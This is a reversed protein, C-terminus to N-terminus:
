VAGHTGKICNTVSELQTALDSIANLLGNSIFPLTALDAITHKPVDNHARLEYKSALTALETDVGKSIKTLVCNDPVSFYFASVECWAAVIRMSMCVRETERLQSSIHLLYQFKSHMLLRLEELLTGHMRSQRLHVAWFSSAYRVNEPIGTKARHGLDSLYMGQESTDEPGSGESNLIKLCSLTLYSHDSTDVYFPNVVTKVQEDRVIDIFCTTLFDIMSTHLHRIPDNSSAGPFLVNIPQMISRVGYSIHIHEQLFTQLAYISLPERMTILIRMIIKFASFFGQRSFEPQQMLVDYYLQYLTPPSGHVLDKAREVAETQCITPGLIYNCVTSAWQFRGKAQKALASRWYLGNDSTDVVQYYHHYVCSSIYRQIDLTTGDLDLDNMHKCLITPHESWSLIDSELRSTILFRYNPPLESFGRLLLDLVEKREIPDGSEDLADLIIIVPGIISVAKSPKVILEEFQTNIDISTKISGKKISEALSEWYQADGGALNRSMTWFLLNRRDKYSRDFPFFSGLREQDDFVSAITHAVASKGSGAQGFLLLVRKPVDDKVWDFFETILEQRTGPLCGKEPLYGSNQAYPMEDLLIRDVTKIRGLERVFYACEITQQIFVLLALRQTKENAGIVCKCVEKLHHSLEDIIKSYKSQAVIDDPIVSLISQAWAVYPQVESIRTQGDKPFKEALSRLTEFHSLFSLWADNEQNGLTNYLVVDAPEVSNSRELPIDRTENPLEIKGLWEITFKLYFGETFDFTCSGTITQLIRDEFEHVPYTTSPMTFEATSPDILVFSIGYDM